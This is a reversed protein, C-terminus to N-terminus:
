NLFGTLESLLNHDRSLGNYECKINIAFEYNSCKMILVFNTPGRSTQILHVASYIKFYFIEKSKVIEKEHFYLNNPKKVSLLGIKVQHNGLVTMGHTYVAYIHLKNRVNTELLTCYLLSMYM